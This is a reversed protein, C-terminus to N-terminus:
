ANDAITISATRAGTSAPTFTVTVQCSAAPALTAGCTTTRSFDASNPGTVAISSISLTASGTNTLTVTRPDSTTGSPQAGFDVSTPSLGLVPLTAAGTPTNMDTPIQDPTRAVSYVRVEDITGQFHHGYLSDGGIQLPNASTAIPGTKPVSSVQAGNVYLRITTGDYTVAVHTWTNPT